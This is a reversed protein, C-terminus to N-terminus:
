AQGHKSRQEVMAKLKSCFEAFTRKAAFSRIRKVVLKAADQQPSHVYNCECFLAHVQSLSLKFFVMGDSVSDSALGACRFFPDECAIAFPSGPQRLALQEKKRLYEMALFLQLPEKHADLLSALRELRRRRVM